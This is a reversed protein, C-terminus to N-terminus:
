RVPASEILWGGAYLEARLGAPLERPSLRGGRLDHLARFGPEGSALFLDTLTNYIRDPGYHLFPEAVLRDVAPVSSETQQGILQEIM